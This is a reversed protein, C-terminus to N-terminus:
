PLVPRHNQIFEWYATVYTMMHYINGYGAFQTIDTFDSEVPVWLLENEDGFVPIDKELMGTYVEMFTHELPYSFDIVHCLSILDPSISTEEFLERYAASLHEEGAEIKGGVFNLLGQYPNKRRRCMLVHRRCADFVVIVNCNM